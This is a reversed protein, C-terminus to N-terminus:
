KSILKNFKKDIKDFNIRKEDNLKLYILLM